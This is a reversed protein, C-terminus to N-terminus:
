LKLVGLHVRLRLERTLSATGLRSPGASYRALSRLLRFEVFSALPGAWRQFSGSRRRSQGVPAALASVGLAPARGCSMVPSCCPMYTRSSVLTWELIPVQRTERQAGLAGAHRAGFPKEFLPNARSFCRLKGGGRRWSPWLQEWPM